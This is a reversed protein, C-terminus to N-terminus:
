RREYYNGPTRRILRKLELAVLIRSLEPIPLGTLAVLEDAHRRVALADYVPRENDALAPASALSNAPPAPATQPAPREAPPAHPPPPPDVALALGMLDEIVDEASRVLRAGTRILELCGASQPSDVPGPVAFVERGQDAAHRATILAGSRRDAEVVVVGRALGSILRNRAPFLAPQPGVRMPAESILCGAGAAIQEALDAHEPPYIRSLGGALVAITRGRAELAARHAAADIGRALGSVVTWGARALGRALQAAVRQGYGTCNRSGVVAVARADVPTWEGRLYVLPPPAPIQELPAPYCASGRPVATVGHQRLLRIEAEPDAERLAGAILRATKEGIHPITLLEEVTARRAAAASGFRELLAATLKPGLGPVLALALHDRVAETPDSPDNM